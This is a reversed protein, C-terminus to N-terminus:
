EVALPLLVSVTNIYDGLGEAISSNTIVAALPYGNGLPKGVTLIDPVVDYAKLSKIM